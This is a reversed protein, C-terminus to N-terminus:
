RPPMTKQCPLKEPNLPLGAAYLVGPMLLDRMPVGATAARSKIRRRVDPPVLVTLPVTKM